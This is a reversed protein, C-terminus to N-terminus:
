FNSYYNSNLFTENKKENSCSSLTRNKKKQKWQIYNYFYLGVLALLVYQRVKRFDSTGPTLLAISFALSVKTGEIIILM